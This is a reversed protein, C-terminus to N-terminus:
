AYMIAKHYITVSWICRKFFVNSRRPFGYVWIKCNLRDMVCSIKPHQHDHWEQNTNWKYKEFGSRGLVVTKGHSGRNKFFDWLRVTPWSIRVTFEYILFIFFNKGIPWRQCLFPLKDAYKAWLNTRLYLQEKKDADDHKRRRRRRWLNTCCQKQSANENFQITLTDACFLPFDLFVHYCLLLQVLAFKILNPGFFVRNLHNQIVGIFKKVKRLTKKVSRLTKLSIKLFDWPKAGM